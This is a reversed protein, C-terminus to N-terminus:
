EVNEPNQEAVALLILFYAEAVEAATDCNSSIPRGTIEFVRLFKLGLLLNPRSSENTVKEKPRFM